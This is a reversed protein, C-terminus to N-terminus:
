DKIELYTVRQGAQPINVTKIYSIDDAYIEMIEDKDVLFYEGETVNINQSTYYRKKNKLLGCLDKSLYKTIYSSVRQTDKVKTATTFGLKWDKVNYIKDGEKTYHGSPLFKIEGCDSLLGHFHYHEKDKHLEPVILYKLDPSGRKKINNLFMTLRKCIDEYNSSDVKERDFTLTIFYEWINSRSINYIKNKTTSLSQQICHKEQEMTRDENKYSKKFNGSIEKEENEEIGQKSVSQNYLTVHKGVPYDYLRCNYSEGQM